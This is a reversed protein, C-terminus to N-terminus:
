KSFIVPKCLGIPVDFASNGIEFVYLGDDAVYDKKEVSYYSFARKDLVFTVEKKEGSQLEVKEFGKLERRPREVAPRYPSIYLQVVAKGARKGINTVNCSVIINDNEKKQKLNNFLFETYSLGHGFPFLVSKGRTIYYRYGILLGDSYKCTINGDEDYTGPYEGFCHAPYDKTNHAPCDELKYPFSVPLKGSPNVEGFIVEALALGGAMGNMSNWLIAKAKDAFPTMDVASGSMISVIMDPKVELLANIVEAQNYPLDYSTRDFGETDYARNLGGVYIVADCEKALKVAEELYEKRKIITEDVSGETDRTDIQADLSTAQWDVEGAVHNENDVYYGKAYKVKVNGGSVMNIGLLPTIEYLPKVESSGGGLAIRRTAADGIVAITKIKKANLPLVNDRNELLVISERAAQLITDHHVLTNYSGKNRNRSYLKIKKQLRLIRAVKDDLIKEPVEGNEVAEKLAGAFYYEDFNYTVGMELDTGAMAADVTSHVAGWDSIVVGKYKWEKKLIDTLLTPNESAYLGNIKNYSCMVSYANGEKVAMEFAPLYIERFTREDIQVDVSMREKEQNNLAFHKVCAAVDKSQIGRIEAAAIKGTLYPDEGMYEFNRGCLPTRHINIGPALIVHKGRACAEDGLVEGISEAVETNWTAALAAGSPIWSVYCMDENVPTWEDDKHDFRVGCPGDSMVLREIGLREVGANKFLANGHVMGIKEDLTMQSIKEKIWKEM